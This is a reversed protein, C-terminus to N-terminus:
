IGAADEPPMGDLLHNIDTRLEGASTYLCAASLMGNGYEAHPEDEQAGGFPAPDACALVIRVVEMNTYGPWHQQITAVMGAVQPAAFSTGRM